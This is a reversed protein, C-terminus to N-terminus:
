KVSEGKRGVAWVEEGLDSEALSRALLVLLYGRGCAKAAVDM